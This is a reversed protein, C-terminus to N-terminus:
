HSNGAAAQRQVQGASWYLDSKCAGAPRITDIGNADTSVGKFREDTILQKPIRFYQFMEAEDGYFYDSIIVESM